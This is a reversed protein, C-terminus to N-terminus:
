TFLETTERDGNCSADLLQFHLHHGECMSPLDFYLEFDTM